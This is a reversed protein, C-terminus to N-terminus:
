GTARARVRRGPPPSGRAVPHAPSSRRPRSRRCRLKRARAPLLPEAHAGDREGAPSRVVLQRLPHRAAIQAEADEARRGLRLPDDRVLDEIRERAARATTVPSVGAIRSSSSGLRDVHPHARGTVRLREGVRDDRQSAVVVQATRDGLAAVGAETLGRAEVDQCAVEGCDDELQTQGGFFVRQLWRRRYRKTVAGAVSVLWSRAHASQEDSSTVVIGSVAAAAPCSAGPHGAPRPCRWPQRVSTM